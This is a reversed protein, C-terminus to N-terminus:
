GRFKKWDVTDRHACELNIDMCHLIQHPFLHVALTFSTLFPFSFFAPLWLLFSSLATFQTQGCGSPSVAFYKGASVNATQCQSAWVWWDSLHSKFDDCEGKKMHHFLGYVRNGDLDKVLYQRRCYLLAFYDLWEKFNQLSQAKNTGVSPSLSLCLILLLLLHLGCM